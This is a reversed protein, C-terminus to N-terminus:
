ARTPTARNPPRVIGRRGTSCRRPRYRVIGRRGAPKPRVRRGGERGGARGRRHRLESAAEAEGRGRAAEARRLRRSSCCCRTRTVPSPRGPPLALDEAHHAVGIEVGEVNVEVLRPCTRPKRRSASPRTRDHRAPRRARRRRRISRSEITVKEGRTVVLLDVHEFFGKIPDRQIAKPLALEDAGDLDLTLLVNSRRAQPRAHVRPGAALHASPRRRPRLPCRPGQRRPPYPPCRGQRVRHAARRIIRVESM